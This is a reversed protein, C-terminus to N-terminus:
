SALAPIEPRDGRKERNQGECSPEYIGSIVEFVSVLACPQLWPCYIGM